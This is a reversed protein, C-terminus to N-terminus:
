LYLGSYHIIMESKGIKHELVYRFDPNPGFADLRLGSFRLCGAFGTGHWTYVSLTEQRHNHRTTATGPFASLSAIAM